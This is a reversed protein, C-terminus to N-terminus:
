EEHIGDACFAGGQYVANPDDKGPPDMQADLKARFAEANDQPQWGLYAVERNDWWSGSNASAGYIIPCGLSPVLFIREILAFFDRDSMWTALMRHNKPEPFCSGIRICATEIGFKDHYMSAMAEGFVKSVGYLGDPRTLSKADLRETQPHFGIAHNSSAFVIRPTVSSKRAAEYLNFVGDINSSRVTDWPAEVSQGGLHVIGDCGEVLAEVADKDALDCHVIEEHSAADTVGDRDSLRITEALPKLGTRCMVGLNGSAGTILLKKLM